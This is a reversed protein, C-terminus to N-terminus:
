YNKKWAWVIAKRDEFALHECDLSVWEASQIPEETEKWVFTKYKYPNYTLEGLKTLSVTQNPPAPMGKIYAHVNKRMEKRVKANGAPQVHFTVDQLDLHMMHQVVLGDQRISFEKRHLNFYVEVPKSEDFKYYPM